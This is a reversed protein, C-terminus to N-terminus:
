FDLNRDERLMSSKATTHGCERQAVAETFLLEGQFVNKWEGHNGCDMVDDGAWEGSQWQRSLGCQQM